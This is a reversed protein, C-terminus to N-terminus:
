KLQSVLESLEAESLYRWEGPKLKELKINMIRVRELKIVQYNFAHCMRRIQRNLGQKLVISFIRRSAPVAMIKCPLTIEGGISVGAAM